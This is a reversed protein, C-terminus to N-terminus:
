FGELRDMRLDHAARRLQEIAADIHRYARDRWAIARPNDEEERIDRRASQLLAMAKRFRGPRDLNTDYHPRDEVDKHDLVAAQDIEHVAFGIEEDVAHIHHIVNPEDHVRLLLQAVRLDTRAHLYRPHRGPTDATLPALLATLGFAAVLITLHKKMIGEAEGETRHYGISVATCDWLRFLPV